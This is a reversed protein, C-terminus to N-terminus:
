WFDMLAAAPIGIGGQVGLCRWPRSLGRQKPMADGRPPIEGNPSTQIFIM